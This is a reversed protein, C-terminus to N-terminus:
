SPIAGLQRLLALTDVYGWRETLRGDVVRDIALGSVVVPNGTAPLGMFPGQHTGRATVRNLVKDGDAVQEEITFRLDPFASRFLAVVRRAGEPGRAPEPAAPNHIAWEPGIIEDAVALNGESFLEEWYRRAIQKNMDTSM